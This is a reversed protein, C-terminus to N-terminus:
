RTEPLLEPSSRAIGDRLAERANRILVRVTSEAVDMVAAVEEYPMGDLHRLTIAIRQREPLDNIRERLAIAREQAELSDGREDAGNRVAGERTASHILRARRGRRRNTQIAQRVVIAKLWAAPQVPRAGGRWDAVASLLAEQVADEADGRDWCFRYALRVLVGREPLGDHFESSRIAEVFAREADASNRGMAHRNSENLDARAAPAGGFVDAALCEGAALSGTAAVDTALRTDCSLRARSM